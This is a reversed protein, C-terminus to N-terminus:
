DEEMIELFDKVVRYPKTLLRRPISFLISAGEAQLEKSLKLPETLIHEATELTYLEIMKKKNVGHVRGCKNCKIRRIEDDIYIVTHETDEQCNICYLDTVYKDM